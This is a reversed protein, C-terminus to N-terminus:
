DEGSEEEAEAPAAGGEAKPKDGAAGAPGARKKKNKKKKKVSTSLLKLLEEDTVKLDTKIEDVHLPVGTVKLPGNPMVLVTFKVHGVFQDRKEELVPYATVVGHEVCEKIGLKFKAADEGSAFPRMSFPFFPHKEQIQSLAYRSAKMKLAYTTNPARMFVTTRETVEKPKGEGTTMVIDIV